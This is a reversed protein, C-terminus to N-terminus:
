IADLMIFAAWYKPDKYDKTKRLYDQAKLFAHHKSKGKALNKYFHSMFIQTAVDDVKWLSMVITKVGAQKFGRQLGFVGESSIEGLGTECASLILLNCGQLNISSIEEALLIGDEVYEPLENGLWTTNAGSFLLGSRKMSLDLESGGENGLKRNLYTTRRAAQDKLFFGHTALHIISKKQGDLNKFSEETGDNGEIVIPSIKDKKLEEAITEIEKKTAELNNWSGRTSEDPIYGRSALYYQEKKNQNVSAILSASDM